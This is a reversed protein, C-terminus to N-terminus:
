VRHIDLKEVVPGAAVVGDVEGEVDGVREQEKEEESAHGPGRPPAGHDSGQECDM